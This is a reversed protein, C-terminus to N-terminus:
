SMLEDAGKPLVIADGQGQGYHQGQPAGEKAAPIELKIEVVQGLVVLYLMIPGQCVGISNRAVYIGRNFDVLM